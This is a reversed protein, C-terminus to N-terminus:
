MKAPGVEPQLSHAEEVKHLNEQRYSNWLSNASVLEETVESKANVGFLM